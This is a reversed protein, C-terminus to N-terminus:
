FRSTMMIHENNKKDVCFLGNMWRRLLNKRDPYWDSVCVCLHESGVQQVPLLSDVM